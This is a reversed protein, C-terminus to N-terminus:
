NYMRLLIWGFVEEGKKLNTGNEEVVVGSLDHEAIFPRGAMFNPLLGMMKHGSTFTISILM